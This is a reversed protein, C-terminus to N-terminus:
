KKLVEKYLNLFNGGLILGIEEDKYGRQILIKTFQKINKHGKIVDFSKRPRVAARQPALARIFDCFDFGIGVHEIGVLKVIHDVHNILHEADAEEDKDSTFMSYANMGIIGNKSALAKIQEDTLNRMSNALARCNSHSAIVPKKAIKMVDLFGEDNLHSVDIFMGLNEAVEILQVGYDTLGGKQGEVREFFHSGDAAFNRRSWVLGVIRVGLEYFIRLLNLDNTLPDVGEFSLIIGLKNEIKAKLIDDYTMCLMIKDPSEDIEAYLASIQDLAKKLGMEPLFADEIYISSVVVNVGGEVFEPLHDNEIVKKYGLDRKRSVDMLLDFHGDVITFKEHIKKVHEDIEQNM